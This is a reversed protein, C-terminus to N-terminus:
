RDMSGKARRDRKRIRTIRTWRPRPPPCSPCVQVQTSLPECAGSRAPYNANGSSDARYSMDGVVTFTSTEATGDIALPVTEDVSAGSCNITAYRHFTVSGTPNPLMTTPSMKGKPCINAALTIVAIGTMIM